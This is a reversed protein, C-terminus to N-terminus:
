EVPPFSQCAATFTAIADALSSALEGDCISSFVANAGTQDAFARLRKAERANGFQSSCEGPGPGAIVATAWRGRDGKLADLVAVFHGVPPQEPWEPDCSDSAITFGDDPRSCDDEDTLFVVALLADDRVFGANSGDAVRAGFALEAAYLPMELGPGSTGVQAVCAFTGAPDPDTREIWRRGMGCGQRFAGDDGQESFDIPPLPFPFGPIPEPQVTYSVDRGSTTVAVRYDLPSGDDTQFGDLVAIFDDFNAALNGQEERMSGSDDVVFLIDMRACTGAEGGGGQGGGGGDPQRDGGVESDSTRGGGCGLSAITIWTVLSGRLSM